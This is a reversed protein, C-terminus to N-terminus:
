AIFEEVIRNFEAPREFYVSHGSAPVQVWRGKPALPALAPGAAAPFVLDEGGTLFLVPVRLDRLRSPPDTRLAFIRARVANKYATATQASVELYRKAAEPQERGMREGLSASFGRAEVEKVKGPTEALWTAIAAKAPGELQRYDLTGSTCAMVLSRVREPHRLAHELCTWGGMSQAVLDAKDLRLEDLLAALDDAFHLPATEPDAPLSPHFGRHSFTVCTHRPAFHAVQAAWSAHNGGVGHAFVIPPGEGAVEYYLDGGPRAIRGTRKKM